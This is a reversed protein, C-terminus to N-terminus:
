KDTSSIQLSNIMGYEFYEDLGFYISAREVFAGSPSACERLGCHINRRADSKKIIEWLKTKSDIGYGDLEIYGPFVALPQILKPKEIPTGDPLETVLSEYGQKPINQTELM